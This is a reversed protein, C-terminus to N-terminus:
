TIGTNMEWYENWYENEVKMGTNMKWKGGKAGGSDWNLDCGDSVQKVALIGTWSICRCAM